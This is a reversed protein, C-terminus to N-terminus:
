SNKCANYPAGLVMQWYIKLFIIRAFKNLPFYRRM